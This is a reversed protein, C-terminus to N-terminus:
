DQIATLILDDFYLYVENGSEGFAKEISIFWDSNYVWQDHLGSATKTHNIQDPKIIEVETGDPLKAIIWLKDPSIGVIKSGIPLDQPLGSPFGNSNKLLDIAFGGVAAVVMFVLIFFILMKKM